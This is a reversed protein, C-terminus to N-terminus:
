RDSRGVVRREFAASRPAVLIPRLRSALRCIGTIRSGVVPSVGRRMTEVEPLEPM